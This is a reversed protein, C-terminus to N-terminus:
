SDPGSFVQLLSLAIREFLSIAQWFTSQKDLNVISNPPSPPPRYFSHRITYLNVGGKREV